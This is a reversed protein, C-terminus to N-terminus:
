HIEHLYYKNILKDAKDVDGRNQLIIIQMKIEKMAQPTLNM